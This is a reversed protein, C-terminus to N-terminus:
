SAAIARARWDNVPSAIPSANPSVSTPSGPTIARRMARRSCAICVGHRQVSSVAIAADTTSTSAASPM